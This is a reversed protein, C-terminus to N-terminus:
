ESSIAESLSAVVGRGRGLDFEVGLEVTKRPERQLLSTNRCGDASKKWYFPAVPSAAMFVEEKENRTM